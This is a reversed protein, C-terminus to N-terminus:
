WVEIHSWCELVRQLEHPNRAYLESAENERVSKFWELGQKLVSESKSMSCYDQMIRCLGAKVEKWGYGSDRKVSAYVREREAKVQNEDVPLLNYQRPTNRPTEARM